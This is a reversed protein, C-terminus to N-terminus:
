HTRQTLYGASVLAQEAQDVADYHSRDGNTRDPHTRFRATKIASTLVARDGFRGNLAVGSEDELIRIATSVSMTTATLGGAGIAKFGRYQEARTSIGYRDVKRLAELGLAIARVNEQWGQSRPRDYHDYGFRDTAYVLPGHKSEFAIRVATSTAIADARLQGDVRIQNERVDLEFVVRKAQLFDLERELLQLTSSWSASFQARHVVGALASRDSIPRVTYELSM